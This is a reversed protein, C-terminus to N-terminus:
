HWIIRPVKGCYEQYEEGYKALLFEEETKVMFHSILIYMVFWFLSAISICILITAILIFGYGVLQPNRSFQYLGGTQLRNKDVGLSPRTGLQFWSAFLILLGTILLLWFIIRIVQEEPVPSFNPWETPNFLYFSNAHGAFVLLELFTTFPSIQQKDLYDKRVRVRFVYYAILLLAISVFIFIVSM